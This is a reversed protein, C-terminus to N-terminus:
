NHVYDNLYGFYHYKSKNKKMIILKTNSGNYLYGVDYTFLIYKKNRYYIPESFKIIQKANQPNNIYNEYYTKNYIIKRKELIFEYPEFDKNTWDNLITDNAYKGYAKKWHKENYIENVKNKLIRNNFDNNRDFITLTEINSKKDKQLIYSKNQDLEQSKLFDIIPDYNKLYASTCSMLLFPLLQILKKVNKM